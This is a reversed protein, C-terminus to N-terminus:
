AARGHPLFAAMDPDDKIRIGMFGALSTDARRSTDEADVTAAIGGAAVLAVEARDRRAWAARQEARLANIARFAATRRARRHEPRVRNSRGM